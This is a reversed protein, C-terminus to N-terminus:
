FHSSFRAASSGSRRIKMSSLPREVFIARSRPQAGFPFRQRAEIGCLWQFVVVKIPPSVSDPIQAGM